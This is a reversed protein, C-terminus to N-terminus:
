LIDAITEGFDCVCCGSLNFLVEHAHDFSLVDVNSLTVKEPSRAVMTVATGVSALRQAVARAMLGSGLVAVRDGTGVVDAAIEAISDHPTDPLARHVDRAAAVASELLKAFLGGVGNRNEAVVLAARFQSLVDREGVIPSELGAAVRYLHIVAAEDSRAVGSSMADPGLLSHVVEDLRAVDGEVAVEIRLCTALVFSGYPVDAGVLRAALRARGAKGVQPYAFSATALRM